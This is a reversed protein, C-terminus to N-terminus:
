DRASAARRYLESRVRDCIRRVEDAYVVAVEGEKQRFLKAVGLKEDGYFSPSRWLGMTTNALVMRAVEERSVGYDSLLISIEYITKELDHSKPYEKGILRFITKIHLEVAEQSRRVALDFSYSQLQRRAEDHISSAKSYLQDIESLEKYSLKREETKMDTKM